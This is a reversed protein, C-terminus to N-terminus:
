LDLHGPELGCGCACGSQRLTLDLADEDEINYDALTRGNYLKEGAFILNQMDTPIGEEDQIMSKIEDITDSLETELTFTKGTMINIHVQM